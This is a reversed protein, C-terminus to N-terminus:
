SAPPLQKKLMESATQRPMSFNVLIQKGEATVKTNRYLIEEDKGRKAFQGVTLLTNYGKAMQVAREPSDAQTEVTAVIENQDLKITVTLPMEDCRLVKEDTIKRPDRLFSLMGSDGIASVMDKAVEVLRVDGTKQIVKPEELKCDQNLNAAILIEIESSLDLEGKDRLANSRALWDKLPRTNVENESPRVVNNEAAVKDLEKEAEEPTKPAATNSNDAATANATVDPSASPVPSPSVEPSPSPSPAAEPAVNLQPTQSIVQNAQTQAAALEAETAFYGPPYRFKDALAVVSVDDGIETKDYARDVYSTNALLSAINFADRVGPVYLLLALVTAHFVVSGAALKLLIPWRPDQNIITNEFLEAM